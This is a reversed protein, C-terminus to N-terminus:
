FCCSCPRVVSPSSIGNLVAQQQRSNLDKFFHYLACEVLTKAREDIMKPDLKEDSHELVYKIVWAQYESSIAVSRTGTSSRNNM